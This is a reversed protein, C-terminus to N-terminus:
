FGEFPLQATLAEMETWLGDYALQQSADLEGYLLNPGEGVQGPVLEFFMAVGDNDMVKYREDRLMRKNLTYPPPGFPQFRESYVTRRESPAAPDDLYRRLSRGDLRREAGEDTTVAFSGDPLVQLPAEFIEAITPYLDTLHVRAECVSGPSAVLPGHIVLPINVGAEYVTGKGPVGETSAEITTGNDAAVIVTTRALVEPDIGALLRGIEHDLAETMAGHKEPVSASGNVGQTHLDSPPVHFPEHSANYALYVFFPEPRTSIVQLADDTTTTTLYSKVTSQVGDEVRPWGFYSVVNTMTGTFLDFGSRTPHTVDDEVQGGALHWKGIAATSVPTPARRLAEPLLYAETSLQVTSGAPIWDGMGTRRALRGTLVEARTSTCMPSSYANEFRIGGAALADINPTPPALARGYAGIKEEGVDDLLILLVNTAAAPKLAASHTESVSSVSGDCAAIVLWLPVTHQAV